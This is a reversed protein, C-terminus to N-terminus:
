AVLLTLPEGDESAAGLADAVAWLRSAMTDTTAQHEFALAWEPSNPDHDAKSSGWCNSLARYENAQDILGARKITAIQKSITVGHPM